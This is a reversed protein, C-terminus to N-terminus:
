EGTTPQKIPKAPKPALVCLITVASGDNCRGECQDSYFEPKTQAALTASRGGGHTKCQVEVADACDRLDDCSHWPAGVIVIEEATAIEEVYAPSLMLSLVLALM